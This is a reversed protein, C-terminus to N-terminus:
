SRVPGRRDCGDALRAEQGVGVGERLRRREAVTDCGLGGDYSHGWGYLRRHGRLMGEHGGVELERRLGSLLRVGHHQAQGAMRGVQRGLRRNCRGGEGGLGVLHNMRIRVADHAVAVEGRVGAEELGRGQGEGVSLRRQHM